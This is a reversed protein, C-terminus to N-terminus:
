EQNGWVTKKKPAGPESVAGDDLCELGHELLSEQDEKEREEGVDLLQGPASGKGLAWAKREAERARKRSRLSM